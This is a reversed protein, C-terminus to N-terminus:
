VVCEQEMAQLRIVIKTHRNENGPLPSLPCGELRATIRTESLNSADM